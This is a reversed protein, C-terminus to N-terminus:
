RFRVESMDGVFEPLSSHGLLQRVSLAEGLHYWYHYINRLLLTGVDESFPKGKWTFRVRLDEQDLQNLFGDAATTIETWRQRMEPFSPTSAPKGTGVLDNLDPILNRGQAARVWFFHEQNAVHGLIWSICNLAGVRQQADGNSVGKLGRTFESRAFHLQTVYHHAM